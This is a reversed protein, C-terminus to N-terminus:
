ASLAFLDQIAGPRPLTAAARAVVQAIVEPPQEVLRWQFRLGGKDDPQAWGSRSSFSLSCAPVKLGLRRCEMVLQAGIVALAQARLWSEAADQVQRPTAAPPLPLHLRGAELRAEKCDGDLSLRISEGLYPLLAGDGWRPGAVPPEAELRLALQPDRM